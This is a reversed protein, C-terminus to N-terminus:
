LMGVERAKREREAKIIFRQIMILMQGSLNHFQCGARLHRTGNRLTMEFVSRIRLSVVIDGIDPLGIHCNTFLMDTSLQIEDPPAIIGVGGGSIDLINAEYNILSNDKKRYPLMCKLPHASPMTLRYFERRQLRLLSDPIAALLANNGKYQILKLSRLVFQIKVKDLNSICILKENSLARENTEENSGIDLVMNKGDASLALLSSIFMEKGQNFHVSILTGHEILARLIGTVEQRTRLMFDRNKEDDTQMLELKLLATNQSNDETASNAMGSDM